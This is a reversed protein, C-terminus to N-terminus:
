LRNGHGGGPSKRLERILGTDRVDGQCAPEKSSTCADKTELFGFPEPHPAIPVPSNNILRTPVEWAENGQAHSSGRLAVERWTM